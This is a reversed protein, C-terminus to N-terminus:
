KYQYNKSLGLFSLLINVVKSRLCLISEVRMILTESDIGCLRNLHRPDTDPAVQKM